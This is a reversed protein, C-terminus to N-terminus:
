FGLRKLDANMYRGMVASRAQVYTAGSTDRRVQPDLMVAGAVIARELRRAVRESGVVWGNGRQRDVGAWLVEVLWGDLEPDPSVRVGELAFAMPAPTPCSHEAVLHDVETRSFGIPHYGCDGCHHEWTHAAVEGAHMSLTETPTGEFKTM